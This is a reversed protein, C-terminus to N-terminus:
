TLWPTPLLNAFLPLRRVSIGGSCVCHLCLLEILVWESVWVFSPGNRTCWGSVTNTITYGTVKYDIDENGFWQMVHQEMVPSFVGDSDSLVLYTLQTLTALSRVGDDDTLSCPDTVALRQLGHLVPLQRLCATIDETVGTLWLNTLATLQLLPTLQLGRSCCLSLVRLASCSSVLRDLDAAEWPMVYSTDLETLAPLQLKEPFVHQWPGPQERRCSQSLTFTICWAM